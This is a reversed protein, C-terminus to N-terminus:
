RRLAVSCVAALTVGLVVIGGAFALFAAQDHGASMWSATRLVGFALVGFGGAIAPLAFRGSAFARSARGAAARGTGAPWRAEALALAALALSTVAGALAFGGLADSPYHWGLLVVSYAVAIAFLGGALAVVSRWAAPAALVACLALAMAATSHGSPWAAADVHSGFAVRPSALAPKLVQSAVNSAVLIAALAATLRPGHRWWAYGALGACLVAYPGVNCLTAISSALDGAWTGQLQAFGRLASADSARGVHTQFALFWVLVAFGACTAAALLAPPVRRLM